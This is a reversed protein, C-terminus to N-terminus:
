RKPETGTIALAQELYSEDLIASIPLPDSYQVAKSEMFFRQLELVSDKLVRGNSDWHLAPMAKLTDVPVKTLESIMQLIQPDNKLKGNNEDRVAKIFGVLFNRVATPNEKAFSKSAFITGLQVPPRKYNVFKVGVGKAIAQTGLPEGIIGAELANNGLATIMDPWPMLTLDVDQVKLGGTELFKATEWDMVTGKGNVAFKTGKLDAAGKVKGSDYLDKRIIVPTTLAPGEPDQNSSAIMVMDVKRAFANLAAVGVTVQGLQLKGTAILTMIQVTDSFKEISLDIGQEKLYSKQLAVFTPSTAVHPIMGFSIKVMQKPAAAAPKTPAPAPTAAATAAPKTAATTPAPKPAETAPAKPATTPTPQATQACGFVFLSIAVFICAVSYGPLARAKM